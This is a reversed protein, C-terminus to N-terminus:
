SRDTTRPGRINRRGTLALSTTAAAPRIRASANIGITLVPFLRAWVRLADAKAYLGSPTRPSALRSNHPRGRPKGWVVDARLSAPRDLGGAPLPNAAVVCNSQVLPSTRMRRRLSRLPRELDPARYRFPWSGRNDVSASGLSARSVPYLFPRRASSPPPNPSSWCDRVLRGRWPVLLFM